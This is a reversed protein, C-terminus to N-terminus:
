RGGQEVLRHLQQRDVKGSANLPLDKMVTIVEPVKYAALREAVFRRLEEASPEHDYSGCSVLSARCVM